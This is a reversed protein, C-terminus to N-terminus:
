KQVSHRPAMEAEYSAPGQTVDERRRGELGEGEVDCNSKGM